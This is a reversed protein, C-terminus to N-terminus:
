SPLRCTPGSGELVTHFLGSVDLALLFILLCIFRAAAMGFGAFSNQFQLIWKSSAIAM